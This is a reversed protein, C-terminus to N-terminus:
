GQSKAGKSLDKIIKWIEPVRRIMVLERRKSMFEEAPTGWYVKNGEITSTVGSQGMVVANEGISITKNVGVQGWLIAGDGIVTGGAVGVQAALLCNRGVSVDHGLHVMNDMKTGSGIKTIETVGRDITCNCGIEVDDGIIVEGCSLMKRYWVERNKKGNFYFADGGIVTGSHIEVRNGITVDDYISVNPHIIVHEGVRVNNGIFVNPMVVASPSIVASDSVMKFSPQFPRFHKIIKLYAEFPEATVLLTKGAPVPVENNIIVFSAAGNLCADYYKPHDVFVVDGGRVKHIENIGSATANQDGLLKAEIFDALWKASVPSPFQM